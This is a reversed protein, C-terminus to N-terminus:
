DDDKQEWSYDQCLQNKLAELVGVWWLQDKLQTSFRTIQKGKKYKALILIEEYDDLRALLNDIPWHLNEERKAELEIVPSAKVSM